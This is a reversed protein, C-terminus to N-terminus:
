ASAGACVICGDPLEIIIFRQRQQSSVNIIGPKVNICRITLFAPDSYVRNIESPHRKFVLGDLRWCGVWFYDNLYRIVIDLQPSARVGIKRFPPLERM